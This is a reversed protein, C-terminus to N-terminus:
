CVICGIGPKQRLLEGTVSDFDVEFGVYPAGGPLPCNADSSILPPTWSSPDLVFRARHVKRLVVSGGQESWEFAAGPDTELLDPKQAAYTHSGQPACWNFVTYGLKANRVTKEAAEVDLAPCRGLALRDAYSAPPIWSGGVTEVIVREKERRWSWAFTDARAPQGAYTLRSTNLTSRTESVASCPVPRRAWEAPDIRFLAPHAGAFDFLAELADNGDPCELEFRAGFIGAPTNRVASWQLTAGPSLTALEAQAAAQGSPGVNVTWPYPACRAAQLPDGHGSLEDGGSVPAVGCAVLLLVSLSRM